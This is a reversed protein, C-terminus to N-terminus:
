AAICSSDIGSASNIHRHAIACPHCDIGCYYNRYCYNESVRLDVYYSLRGYSCIWSNECRVFFTVPYSSVMKLATRM